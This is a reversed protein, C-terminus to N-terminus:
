KDKTPRSIFNGTSSASPNGGRLNTPKESSQHPASRKRSQQEPQRHSSATPRTIAQVERISLDMEVLKQRWQVPTGQPNEYHAMSTRLHRSLRPLIISILQDDPIGAYANLRDVETLYDQIPGTQALGLLAQHSRDKKYRDGYYLQFGAHAEEWTRFESKNARGWELAKGELCISVYALRQGENRTLTINFYEELQLLWGQLLDRDGSFQGTPPAKGAVENTHEPQPAPTLAELLQHPRIDDDTTSAVASQLPSRHDWPSGEILNYTTPPPQPLPQRPLDSSCM